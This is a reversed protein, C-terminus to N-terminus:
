LTKILKFDFGPHDYNRKDKDYEEKTGKKEPVGRWSYIHTKEVNRQAYKMNQHNLWNGFHSTFQRKSTKKDDTVDLHSKFKKLFDKAVDISITKKMAIAELYLQDNICENLFSENSGQFVSANIKSTKAQQYHDFNLIKIMTFKKTSKVEIEGTKCLKKIAGRIQNLNLGTEEELSRFSTHLEGRDVYRGDEFVKEIKATLLAHLFL